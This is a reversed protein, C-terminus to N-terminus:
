TRMRDLTIAATSMTLLVMLISALVPLSLLLVLFIVGITVRSISGIFEKFFGNPSKLRLFSATYAVGTLASFIFALGYFLINM